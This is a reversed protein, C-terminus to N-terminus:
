LYSEAESLHHISLYNGPCPTPETGLLLL